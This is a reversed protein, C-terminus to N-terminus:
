IRPGRAREILLKGVGGESFLALVPCHEGELQCSHMADGMTMATWALGSESNKKLRSLAAVHPSASM